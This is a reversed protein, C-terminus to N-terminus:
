VGSKGVRLTAVEREDIPVCLVAAIVSL